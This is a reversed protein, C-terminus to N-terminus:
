PLAGKSTQPASSRASTKDGSLPPNESAFIPDLRRMARYSNQHEPLMLLALAYQQKAMQLYKLKEYYQGAMYRMQASLSPNSISKEAAEIALLAAYETNGQYGHSYCEKIMEIVEPPVNISAQQSVTSDASYSDIQQPEATINNASLM